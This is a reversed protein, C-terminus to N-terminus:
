IEFKCMPCKKNEVLWIDICNIHFFHSCEITRIIDNEEINDQCIICVDLDPKEIQEKKNEYIKNEYIKRSINSKELLDKSILGIKVDKLSSLIDYNNTTSLINNSRYSPIYRSNIPSISLNRSNNEYTNTIGALEYSSSLSNSRNRFRSRSLLYETYAMRRSRGPPLLSYYVM